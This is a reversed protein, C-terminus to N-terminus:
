GDDEDSVEALVLGTASDLDRTFRLCHESADILYLNFGASERVPEIGASIDDDLCHTFHHDPFADRLAAVSDASLGARSVITEIQDLFVPTIM